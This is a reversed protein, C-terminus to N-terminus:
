LILIARDFIRLEDRCLFVPSARLVYQLKPIAFANKLSAVFAQHPKLVELKSTTRVLAEKKKRITRSIVQIDVLAELSGATFTRVRLGGLERFSGESYPM